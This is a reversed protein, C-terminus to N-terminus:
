KDRTEGCSLIDELNIPNLSDSVSKSFKDSKLPTYLFHKSKM